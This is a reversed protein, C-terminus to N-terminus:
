CGGIPLNWTMTNTGSGDPTWRVTGGTSSADRDVIFNVESADDDTVGRVVIQLLGFSRDENSAAVPSRSFTDSVQGITAAFGTPATSYEYFPGGRTASVWLGTEAGAGKTSYQLASCITNDTGTVPTHLHTVRSPYRGVASDFRFISLRLSEMAAVADLARQRDANAALNSFLVAALMALITLTVVVEVLTIGPRPARRKPDAAV